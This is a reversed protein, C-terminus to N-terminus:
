EATKKKPNEAEKLEQGYVVNIGVEPGTYNIEETQWAMVFDEGKTPTYMNRYAAGISKRIVIFVKRVNNLAISKNSIMIKTPKKVNKQVLQVQMCSQTIPLLASLEEM